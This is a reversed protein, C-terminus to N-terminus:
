FDMMCKCRSLSSYEFIWPNCQFLATSKARIGKFQTVQTKKPWINWIRAQKRLYMIVSSTCMPQRHLHNGQLPLGKKFLPGYIHANGLYSKVGAGPVKKPGWKEERISAMVNFVLVYPRCEELLSYICRIHLESTQLLTGRSAKKLCHQISSFLACVMRALGNSHVM